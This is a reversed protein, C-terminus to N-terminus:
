HQVADVVVQEMVQEDIWGTYLQLVRGDGRIGAFIPPSSCHLQALVDGLQSVDQAEVSTFSAESSYKASLAQYNALMEEDDAAGSVYALIVVCRNQALADSVFSPTDKTPRITLAPLGVTGFSGVSDYDIQAATSTNPPLAPQAAASFTVLVGLLLAGLLIILIARNTVRNSLVASPQKPLGAKGLLAACGPSCNNIHPSSWLIRASAAGGAGPTLVEGPANRSPWLRGM